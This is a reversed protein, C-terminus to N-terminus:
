HTSAYSGAQYIWSGGPGSSFTANQLGSQYNVTANNDIIVRYGTLEWLNSNNNIHITGYPAFFVSSSANNDIQIADDTGAYTTIFLLASNPQGNGAGVANNNLTIKGTTTTSGPKDAIIM